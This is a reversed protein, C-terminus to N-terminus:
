VKLLREEQASIQSTNINENLQLQEHESARHSAQYLHKSQNLFNV